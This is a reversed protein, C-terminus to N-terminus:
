AYVTALIMLFPMFEIFRIHLPLEKALEIFPIIEQDNIGKMLVVNLKVSFNQELLLELNSWVHELAHRKTLLFFTNPDLSDLSVNVSKLGCEKLLSIHQDIFFANTTLNLEVPLQALRFLIDAFDKRVLPEGGTLRIRDVGQAVFLKALDEIEQAQMLQSNPTCKHDENPM